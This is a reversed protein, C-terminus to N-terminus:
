AGSGGGFDAEFSPILRELAVGRSGKLLVVEGGTLKARLLAYADAPQEAAILEPAGGRRPTEGAAHAFKGSAVVIDLERGLVDSLVREHLEASRDGLELMSGLVAVRRAANWEELIGISAIVSQPNANYCDLLLTLGGVQRV